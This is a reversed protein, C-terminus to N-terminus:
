LSATAAPVERSLLSKTSFKSPIKSFFYLYWWMSNCLLWLCRTAVMELVPWIDNNILSIHGTKTKTYKKNKWLLYVNNWM